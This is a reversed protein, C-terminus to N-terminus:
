IYRQISIWIALVTRKFTPSKLRPKHWVYARSIERNSADKRWSGRKSTPIDGQMDLISWMIGLFFKAFHAENRDLRPKHIHLTLRIHTGVVGRAEDRRRPQRGYEPHVEPLSIKGGSSRPTQIFHIFWIVYGISRSYQGVRHNAM